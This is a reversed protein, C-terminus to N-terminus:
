GKGALSLVVNQGTGAKGSVTYTVPGTVGVVGLVGGKSLAGDAGIHVQMPAPPSSGPQRGERSLQVDSNPLFGTLTIRRGTGSSRHVLCARAGADSACTQEGARSCGSIVLIGAVAAVWLPRKM